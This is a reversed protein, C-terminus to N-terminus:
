AAKLLRTTGKVLPKEAKVLGLTILKNTYISYTRAAIPKLKRTECEQLYLRKLEGSLIQGREKLVSYLIRHHETLKHLLYTKKLDKASNWGREVDEYEIRTKYEREAQHAANKLTQIAVRADGESLEAIKELIADNWTKPYLAYEARQRLIFILDNVSYAPFEIRTPQLRSKVREDLGFLAHKSNCICILGVKPLNSLHYLIANKEKPAPQDIEDLIVIFPKDGTCEQFRELKFIITMKDAGLIRLESCIKELISFASNHKWCDIFVGRVASEHVLRKLMFKTTATKGTGPNGYVWCHLPKKGKLAPAICFQLETIQADRGPIRPPVYDENLLDPDAIIGKEDDEIMRMLNQPHSKFLYGQTQRKHPCCIV